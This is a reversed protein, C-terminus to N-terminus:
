SSACFRVSSKKALCRPQVAPPGARRERAAHPRTVDHVQTLCQLANGLATFPDATFVAQRRAM